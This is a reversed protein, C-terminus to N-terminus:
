VNVKLYVFHITKYGRKKVKKEPIELCLNEGKTQIKKFSLIPKLSWQMIYTYGGGMVSRQMYLFKETKGSM